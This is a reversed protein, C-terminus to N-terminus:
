LDPQLGAWSRCVWRDGDEDLVIRGTNPLHHSLAWTPDVQALRTVSLRACAGHTVVVATGEDLGLVVDDLAALWRDLVETGSEGGGACRNGLEGRVVWSAYLDDFAEHAEADRRDHLEGLYAEKFGDHERVSLGKASAVPAATQAARTMTSCWVARVDETALAEALEEAQQRGRDTLQPGPVTCHLSGDVNAESQGHRVVILRRM